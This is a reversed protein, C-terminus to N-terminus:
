SALLLISIAEDEQMREQEAMFAETRAQDLSLAQNILEGIVASYDPPPIPEFTVPDIEGNAIRWSRDIIRRLQEQWEIQRQEYRAWEDDGGRRPYFIPMLASASLTDDEETVALSSDVILNSSASFSDNEETATFSGVLDVTGSVSPVDDGETAGASGAIALTASSSLTDNAETIAASAVIDVTGSASAVDNTETAAVNAIIEVTASAALTDNTETVSLSADIPGAPLTGHFLLLLSM